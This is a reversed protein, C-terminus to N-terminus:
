RSADVNADDSPPSPSAPPETPWVPLTGFKAWERKAGRILTRGGFWVLVLLTALSVLASVYLVNDRYDLKLTHHGAPVDVALLGEESRVKGVNSRWKRAWNQNVLVTTNAKANVDLVLTNPSWSLRKVEAVAPDAPYEEQPLDARLRASEPIPIGDVCNLSGMNLHPFIHADRRNGRAQKFEQEHPRPAEEVYLGLSPARQSTIFDEALPAAIKWSLLAAVGVALWKVERPATSSAPLALAAVDRGTVRKV